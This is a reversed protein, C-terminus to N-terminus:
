LMELLPALIANRGFFLWNVTGLRTKAAEVSASFDHASCIINRVGNQVIDRVLYPARAGTCTFLWLSRARGVVEKFKGARRMEM